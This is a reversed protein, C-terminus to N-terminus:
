LWFQSLLWSVDNPGLILGLNIRKSRKHSTCVICRPWRPRAESSLHYMNCLAKTHMCMICLVSIQIITIWGWSKRAKWLIVFTWFVQCVGSQYIRHHSENQLNTKLNLFSKLSLLVNSKVVRKFIIRCRDGKRFNSINRNKCWTLDFSLPVFLTNLHVKFQGIICFNLSFMTQYM